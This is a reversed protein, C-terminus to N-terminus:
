RPMKGQHALRRDESRRRETDRREARDRAEREETRALEQRREWDREEQMRRQRLREEARAKSRAEEMRRWRAASACHLSQRIEPFYRTTRVCVTSDAPIQHLRPSQAYVEPAAVLLSLALIGRM